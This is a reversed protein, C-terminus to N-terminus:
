REIAVCHHTVRGSITRMRAEGSSRKKTRRRRWMAQQDQALKSAHHHRNTPPHHIPPLGVPPPHCKTDYAVEAPPHMLPYLVGHPVHFGVTRVPAACILPVARHCAMPPLPMCKEQKGRGEEENDGGVVVVVQMYIANSHM